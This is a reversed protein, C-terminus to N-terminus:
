RKRYTCFCYRVGDEEQWDGAECRWGEAEDLNPVVEQGELGCNAVVMARDAIGRERLAQQLEGLRKGSKMFVKTGYVNLAANVDGTSVPSVLLQESRECLPERLVAAAACFSTVGPVVEVDYGRSIM